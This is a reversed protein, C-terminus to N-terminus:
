SLCHKKLILVICCEGDSTPKLINVYMFINLRMTRLINEPTIFCM